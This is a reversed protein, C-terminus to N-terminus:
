PISLQNLWRTQLLCPFFFVARCLRIALCGLVPLLLLPSQELNEQGAGGLLVDGGASGVVSTTSFGFGAEEEPEPDEPDIPEPDIPEPINERPERCCVMVFGM